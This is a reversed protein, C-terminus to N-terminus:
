AKTFKVVHQVKKIMGLVSKSAVLQASSSIGSLGLGILTGKQRDNLKAKSKIQTVIIKQDLLSTLSMKANVM